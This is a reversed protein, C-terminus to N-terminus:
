PYEQANYRQVKNGKPGIDPHTAIALCLSRMTYVAFVVVLANTHECICILKAAQETLLSQNFNM